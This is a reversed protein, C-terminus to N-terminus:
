WPHRPSENAKKRRANFRKPIPQRKGNEDSPRVGISREAGRKHIPGSGFLHNRGPEVMDGTVRSKRFEHQQWIQWSVPRERVHQPARERATGAAHDPESVM